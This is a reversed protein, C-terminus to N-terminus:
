LLGRKTKLEKLIVEISKNGECLKIMDDLYDKFDDNLETLDDELDSIKDELDNVEGELNDVDDCLELIKSNTGRLEEALKAALDHVLKNDRYKYQIELCDQTTFEKFYIERGLM